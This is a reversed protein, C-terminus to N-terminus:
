RYDQIVSEQQQKIIVSDEEQKILELRTSNELTVAEDKIKQVCIKKIIKM